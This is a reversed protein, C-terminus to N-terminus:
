GASEEVARRAILMEAVAALVAGLLFIRWLETGSSGARLADMSSKRYDDIVRIQEQSPVFRELSASLEQASFNAMVSESAPANVALTSLITGFGASNSPKYSIAYVGPQRLTELSLLAGSPTPAAQRTSQTNSPDTITLAAGSPVKGAIPITLSQGVVASFSEQSRSTLYSAARFVIPVFVGTVPFSSWEASPPVAIYLAKGTGRKSEALFIGDALEIIAQATLSERVLPMARSIRPSEVIRNAGETESRKFVGQFLPHAADVSTFEAPTAPPYESEAVKGFQLAPLITTNYNQLDASAGAFIFVGGGEQVFAQLRGADSASFRPIGVLFLADFENLAISSLADAPLETLNQTSKDARLAVSLFACEDRSGILALRPAPPLVFGVHRRNDADLVDGEVEVTCRVLGGTESNASREPAAAAIPIMRSEGKPITVTRQAVREGNMQLSVIVDRLDDGSSNRVRAEIEVPKGSEFIRSVLHLSDVSLNREGAKSDAGIPVCYVATAKSFLKLSDNNSAVGTSAGDDLVINKQADTIIFVERNLNQADTLISSALRLAGELKGTAFATPVNQIAERMAGLDRTFAATRRDSLDAMQVLAVEDGDGLSRVVSLAAEKAQKLRVGREDALEMSFSNDLVIVVSSKAKTGLGPFSTPITPRAFALVACVVILVRLLLLILQTIKLKRIRTKQLEKLFTLTSFDITQLKRLNFFHLLIPIAAAALGLLIAPNLFTM